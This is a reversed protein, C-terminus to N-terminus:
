PVNGEQATGDQATGDQAAGDQASIRDLVTGTIRTLAELDTRSLVAFVLEKVLAAHTPAAAVIAARGAATISLYAGRGDQPCERRDILGRAQMRKIHHSVRSREWDLAGALETVRVAGGPHDTLIVLVAFDSMSLDSSEQMSRSLVAELRANVHLWQRWARQQDADLWGGHDTM